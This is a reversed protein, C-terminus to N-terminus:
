NRGQYKLNKNEASIRDKRFSNGRLGNTSILHIIVIPFSLLSFLVTADAFDGRLYFLMLAIYLSYISVSFESFNSKQMFKYLFNYSLGMFYMGIFVGYELFNMYFDGILSPPMTTGRLYWSDPWLAITLIGPPPLPKDPWINSPIMATFLHIFSNGYQLELKSPISDVVITLIQIQFFIGGLTRQFFEGIIDFINDGKITVIQGIVFYERFLLDYLNLFIFGLFLTILFQYYTIKKYVIGFSIIGAFAIVFTNGKSGLLGSILISFATFIWFVKDNLKRRSILFNWWMLAACPLFM